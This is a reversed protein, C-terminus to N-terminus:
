QVANYFEPSKKTFNINVYWNSLVTLFKVLNEKIEDCQEESFLEKAYDSIVIGQTEECVTYIDNEHLTVTLRDNNM